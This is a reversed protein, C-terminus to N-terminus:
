EASADLTADEALAPVGTSARYQNLMALAQARDLVAGKADMRQSLGPPLGGASSCAALAGMLALVLAGRRVPMWTRAMTMEVLWGSRTSSCGARPHIPASLRATRPM